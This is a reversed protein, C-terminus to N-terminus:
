KPSCKDIRCPLQGFVVRDRGDLDARIGVEAFGADQFMQMIALGQTPGIEVILRGSPRIHATAQSLIARYCELGDAGDTLAIHPDHDRVEPTLAAMEELALYPPNSVILDFQGTVESWWDSHLLKLRNAVGLHEANRKAVSLAETSIDTAVASTDPREALLSVAIAGSGTGMDLVKEFSADLAQAILEETEPRPDLVADTVAFSRGYFLRRGIIKSVPKGNARLAISAEFAAADRDSLDDPAVLTIRAADVGLIHAMLMRADRAAGDVNALKLARTGAILAAQVTGTM